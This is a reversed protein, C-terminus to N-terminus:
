KRRRYVYETLTSAAVIGFVGLFPLLMTLDVHGTVVNVASEGTELVNIARDDFQWGGPLPENELLWLTPATGGDKGPAFGVVLVIDLDYDGDIDGLAVNM